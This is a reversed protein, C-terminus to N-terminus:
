EASAPVLKQGLQQNMTLFDFNNWAEAVKGDRIICMTMGTFSVQKGTPTHTATVSTRAAEQDGQCIVEEVTTQVNSFENRFQYYFDKYEAVGTKAGESLGHIIVGPSFLDDIASEDSENWVRQFFKCTITDTKM